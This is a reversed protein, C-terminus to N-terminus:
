KSRRRQNHPQCGGGCCARWMAQLEVAHRVDRFAEMHPFSAALMRLDGAVEFGVVAQETGVDVRSLGRDLEECGSLALMDVLFVESGAALQLLAVASKAGDEHRARWETDLGIAPASLLSSVCGEVQEPVGVFHVAEAPAELQLYAERERAREAEIAEPDVEIVEPPLGWEQRHVEALGPEGDAVMRKLLLERLGSDDGAFSAAVDWMQRGMLKEMSRVKYKREVGPFEAQLGWQRVFGSAEKLRGHAICSSVLQRRAAAEETGEALRAGLSEQGAEVIDDLIREIDFRGQLCPFQLLLTVAPHLTSPDGLLERLYGELPELVEDFSDSMEYHVAVKAAVRARKPSSCCQLFLRVVQARLGELSDSSLKVAGPILELLLHVLPQASVRSTTSETNDRQLLLILAETFVRVATKPKVQDAIQLDLKQQMQKFHYSGGMMEELAVVFGPVDGQQLAVRARVEERLM